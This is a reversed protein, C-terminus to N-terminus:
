PATSTPGTSAPHEGPRPEGPPVDVLDVGILALVVKIAARLDPITVGPIADVADPTVTPDAAQMALMLLTVQAGMAEPTDFGIRVFAPGARRMQGITLPAVPFERGGLTIVSM